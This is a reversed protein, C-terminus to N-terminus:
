FARSPFFQPIEFSKPDEFVILDRGTDLDSEIRWHGLLGSPRIVLRAGFGVLDQALYHQCVSEYLETLVPFERRLHGNFMVQEHVLWALTQPEYKKFGIEWLIIELTERPVPRRAKRRQELQFLVTQLSVSVMPGKSDLHHALLHTQLTQNLAEKAKAATLAAFQRRNTEAQAASCQETEQFPYFIEPAVLTIPPSEHESDDFLPSSVNKRKPEARRIPNDPFNDTKIVFGSVRGQVTISSQALQSLVFALIDPNPSWEIVTSDALSCFTLTKM